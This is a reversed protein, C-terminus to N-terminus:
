KVLSRAAAESARKGTRNRVMKRAEDLQEPTMEKAAEDRARKALDGGKEGALDSWLYAQKLDKEVCKGLLYALGLSGATRMGPM